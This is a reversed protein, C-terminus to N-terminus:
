PATEVPTVDVGDRKFQYRLLWASAIAQGNQV